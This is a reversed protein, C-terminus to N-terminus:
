LSNLNQTRANEQTYKCPQLNLSNQAPKSSGAPDNLGAGVARVAPDQLGAEDSSRQAERPEEPSRQAGRPEQPSRQTGTPEESSRHAERPEQPSRQTGTPKEPNRHAERPEQPSRQSGTPKEPSRHTERPERPRRQAGTAEERSRQTGTSNDPTTHTRTEPERGWCLLSLFCVGPVSRKSVHTSVTAVLVAIQACFSRSCITKVNKNSRNGPAWCLLRLVFVNLVVWESVHTSVAAQAWCYIVFAHFSRNWQWMKEFLKKQNNYKADWGDAQM